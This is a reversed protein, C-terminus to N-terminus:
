LIINSFGSNLFLSAMKGYSFFLISLNKGKGNVNAYIIFCSAEDLICIKVCVYICVYVCVCVRACVYVCVCVCVCVCM